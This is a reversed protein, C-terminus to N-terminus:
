PDKGPLLEQLFKGLLGALEADNIDEYRRAKQRATELTDRIEDEVDRIDARRSRVEEEKIAKLEQRYQESLHRKVTQLWHDVRCREDSIASKIEKEVEIVKTFTDEAM